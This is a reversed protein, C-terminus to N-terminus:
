TPLLNHPANLLDSSQAIPYFLSLSNITRISSSYVAATTSFHGISHYLPCSSSYLPAISHYLPCSSSYLPDISHYLPCSSSYFLAISCYLPRSSSYLPAISHYLSCSSSYLPSNVVQYISNSASFLNPTLSEHQPLPSFEAPMKQIAQRM